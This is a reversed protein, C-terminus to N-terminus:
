ANLQKRESTGRITIKRPVASQAKPIHIHLVGDAYSAEIKDGEVYDPLRISRAFNGTAREASYVRLESKEPLQITPGRTGKITLTGQEFSIDVNELHVGPLDAEVVYANDTEYVDLPPLWVQGSAGAPTGWTPAFGFGPDFGLAQDLARQMSAVRDFLTNRTNTTLM